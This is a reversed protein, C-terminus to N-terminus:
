RRVPARSGGIADDVTRVELYTVIGLRTSLWRQLPDFAAAAEALSLVRPAAVSWQEGRWTLTAAGAAMVNRAWQTGGGFPLPIVFGGPIPRAVVPTRRVTGSSRGRHEIIAWLGFARRGALPRLLGMTGVAFRQTLSRRPPDPRLTTENQMSQRHGTSGDWRM